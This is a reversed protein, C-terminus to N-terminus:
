QERNYLEFIASSVGSGHGTIEGIISWAPVRKRKARLAANRCIKALLEDKDSLIKRFREPSGNLCKIVAELKENPMETGEAVEDLAAKLRSSIGEIVADRKRFDSPDMGLARMADIAVMRAFSECRDEDHMWVGCESKTVM